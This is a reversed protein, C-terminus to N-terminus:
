SFPASRSTQVLFVGVGLWISPTHVRGIFDSLFMKDDSSLVWPVLKFPSARVVNIVSTSATSLEWGSIVSRNLSVLLRLGIHRELISVIFVLTTIGGRPSNPSASIYQWLCRLPTCCVVSSNQFLHRLSNRTLRYRHWFHDFILHIKLSSINNQQFIIRVMSVVPWHCTYRSDKCVLM